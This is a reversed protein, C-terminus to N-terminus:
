PVIGSISKEAHRNENGPLPVPVEKVHVEACTPDPYMAAAAKIRNWYAKAVDM